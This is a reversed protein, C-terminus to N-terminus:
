QSESAETDEIYENWWMAFNLLYWVQNAPGSKLVQEVGEIDLFDETWPAHAWAADDLRGDIVPPVEVLGAVYTRPHSPSQCGALLLFVVLFVILRGYMGHLM